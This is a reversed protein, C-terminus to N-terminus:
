VWAPPGSRMPKRARKLSRWLERSERVFAKRLSNPETHLSTTSADAEGALLSRALDRTKKPPLM